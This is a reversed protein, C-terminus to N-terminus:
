MTRRKWWWWVFVLGVIVLLVFPGATRFAYAENATRRAEIMKPSWYQLVSSQWRFTAPDKPLYVIDVADGPQVTLRARNEASLYEKYRYTEGEHTFAFAAEFHEGREHKAPPAAEVSELVGRGATGSERLETMVAQYHRAGAFATLYLRLGLLGLLIFCLGLILRWYRM